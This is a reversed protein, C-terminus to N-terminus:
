QVYCSLKDHLIKPSLLCMEKTKLNVAVQKSYGTSLKTGDQKDTILFNVRIGYECEVLKAQVVITQMFHASKVYRVRVDIVPWAFGSEQMQLYNYDIMDLLQCRAKEFYKIYNGHWVIEMPDVDYFPIQIEIKTSINIM